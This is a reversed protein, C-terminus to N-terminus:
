FSNYNFDTILPYWDIIIGALSSVVHLLLLYIHLPNDYHGITQFRFIKQENDGVKNAMLKAVPLRSLFIQDLSKIFM